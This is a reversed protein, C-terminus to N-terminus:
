HAVQSVHGTQQPSYVEIGVRREMAYSEMDDKVVASQSAGHSYREIRNGSVGAALLGQEVRRARQDSLVNNFEDLGSPDAYGDLRIHLAPHQNLFDALHQVRDRGRSTLEDDGTRFLVQFKLSSLALQQLQAANNNAVLLQQQLETLQLQALALETTTTDLEDAKKLQEGLYAGGLAGVLFGAPGAAVAGVIATGMFSVGQKTETTVAQALPASTSVFLLSSIAIFKKM